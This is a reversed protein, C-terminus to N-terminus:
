NRSEFVNAKGILQDLRNRIDVLVELILATCEMRIYNDKVETQMEADDWPLAEKLEQLTRNGM